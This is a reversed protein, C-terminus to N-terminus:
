FVHFTAFITREAKIVPPATVVSKLASVPRRGVQLVKIGAGERLPM